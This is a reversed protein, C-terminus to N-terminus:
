FKRLVGDTSSPAFAQQMWAHKQNGRCETENPPHVPKSLKPHMGQTAGVCCFSCTCLVSLVYVQACVCVCVYVHVHVCVDTRVCVSVPANFVCRFVCLVCVQTRLLRLFLLGLRLFLWLLLLRLRLPRQILRGEDRILGNLYTPCSKLSPKHHYLM